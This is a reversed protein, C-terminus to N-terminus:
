NKNKLFLKVFLILTIFVFVIASWESVKLGLIEYYTQTCNGDGQFVRVVFEHFPLSSLLDFFKPGCSLTEVSMEEQLYIQRFAFISGFLSFLLIPISLQIKTPILYKFLTLITILLLFIRQAVCLTCPEIGIVYEIYFSSILSLSSIILILLNLREDSKFFSTLFNIM